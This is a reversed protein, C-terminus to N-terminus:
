EVFPDVRGGFRELKLPLAELDRVQRPEPLYRGVADRHFVASEVGCQDVSQAPRRM